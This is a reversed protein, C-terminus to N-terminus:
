IRCIWGRQFVWLCLSSSHLCFLKQFFSNYLGILRLNEFKFKEFANEIESYKLIYSDEEDSFTQISELSLQETM